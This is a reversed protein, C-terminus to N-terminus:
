HHIHIEAGVTSSSSQGDDDEDPPNMWRCVSGSLVFRNFLAIIVGGALASLFEGM